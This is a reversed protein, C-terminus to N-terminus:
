RRNRPIWQRTRHLFGSQWIITTQDGVSVGRQMLYFLSWLFGGGIGVPLIWVANAFVIKWFGPDPKEGLNFLYAIFMAAVMCLATAFPFLLIGQRLMKNRANRNIRAEVDDQSKRQASDQDGGQEAEGRYSYRYSGPDSQTPQNRNSM